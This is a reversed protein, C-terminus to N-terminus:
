PSRWTCLGVADVTGHGGGHSPPEASGWYYVKAAEAGNIFVKSTGQAGRLGAGWVTVIVGDKDATGNRSTGSNGIKPGSTLDSFNLVPKM